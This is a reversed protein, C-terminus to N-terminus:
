VLGVNVMEALNLGVHDVESSLILYLSTFNIDGIYAMNLLLTQITDRKHAHALTHLKLLSKKKIQIRFDLHTNLSVVKLDLNHFRHLSQGDHVATVGGDRYTHLSGKHGLNQCAFRHVEQPCKIKVVEVLCSVHALLYYTQADVILLISSVSNQNSVM